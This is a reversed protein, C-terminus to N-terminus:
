VLADFTIYLIFLLWGLYAAATINNKQNKLKDYHSKYVWPHRTRKIKEPTTTGMLSSHTEM